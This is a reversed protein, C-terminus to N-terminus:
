QISRDNCILYITEVHPPCQSWVLYSGTEKLLFDWTFLLFAESQKRRSCLALLYCIYKEFVRIIM